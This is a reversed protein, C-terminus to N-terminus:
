TDMKESEGPQTHQCCLPCSLSGDHTPFTDSLRASVTNTSSPASPPPMDPTKESEPWIHDNIPHPLQIQISTGFHVPCKFGLIYHEYVSATNLLSTLGSPNVAATSFFLWLNWSSIKRHIVNNYEVPQWPFIQEAQVLLAIFSNYLCM